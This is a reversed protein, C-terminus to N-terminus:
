AIWLEVHLRDDAPGIHWRERDERGALARGIRRLEERALAYLFSRLAEPPPIAAPDDEENIRRENLGGLTGGQHVHCPLYEHDDPRLRSRLRHQEIRELAQLVIRGRRQHQLLAHSRRCRRM